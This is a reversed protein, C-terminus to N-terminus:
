HLAHNLIAPVQLDIPFRIYKHASVQKSWWSSCPVSLKIDHERHVVHSQFSEAM